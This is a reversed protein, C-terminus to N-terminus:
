TMSVQLREASNRSIATLWCREDYDNVPRALIIIVPCDNGISLISAAPHLPCRPRCLSNPFVKMCGKASCMKIGRCTAHRYIIPLLKGDVEVTAKREGSSSNKSLQIDKWVANPSSIGIISSVKEFYVLHKPWKCSYGPFQWEYTEARRWHTRDKLLDRIIDLPKVTDQRQSDGTRESDRKSHKRAPESLAFVRM